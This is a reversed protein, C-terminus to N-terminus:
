YEILETKQFSDPAYGRFKMKAMFSYAPSIEMALVDDKDRKFASGYKDSLEGYFAVEGTSQIIAITSVERMPVSTSDEM